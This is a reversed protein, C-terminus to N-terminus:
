VAQKERMIRSCNPSAILILKSNLDNDIWLTTKKASIEM